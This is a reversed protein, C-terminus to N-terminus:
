GSCGRARRPDPPTPKVLAAQQEAKKHLLEAQEDSVFFEWLEVAPAHIDGGDARRDYNTLVDAVHQLTNIDPQKPQNRLDSITGPRKLGFAALGVPKVGRLRLLRDVASAWPRSIM